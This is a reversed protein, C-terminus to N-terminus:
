KRRSVLVAAVALAGLLLVTVTPFKPTMKPDRTTIGVSAPPLDLSDAFQAIQITIDGLNAMAWPIPNTLANNVKEMAKFDLLSVDSICNLRDYVILNATTAAKSDLTTVLPLAGYPLYNRKGCKAGPDVTKGAFRNLQAILAMVPNGSVQYPTLGIDEIAGINYRHYTM